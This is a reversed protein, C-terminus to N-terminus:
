NTDQLVAKADCEKSFYGSRKIKFWVEVLKMQYRRCITNRSIMESQWEERKM